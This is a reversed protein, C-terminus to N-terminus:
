KLLDHYFKKNGDYLEDLHQVTVAGFRQDASTFKSIVDASLTLLPIFMLVSGREMMGLTRVIHMKGDGTRQIVALYNM